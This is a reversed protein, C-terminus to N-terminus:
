PMKIINSKLPLTSRKGISLLLSFFFTAFFHPLGNSIGRFSSTVNSKGVEHLAYFWNQNISYM